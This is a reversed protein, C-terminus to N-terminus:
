ESEKEHDASLEERWMPCATAECPLGCLGHVECAKALDNPGLNSTFVRIECLHLRMIRNYDHYEDVDRPPSSLLRYNMCVTNAMFEREVKGFTKYNNHTKM